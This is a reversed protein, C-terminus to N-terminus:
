IYNKSLQQVSKSYKNYVNNWIRCNPYRFNYRKKMISNYIVNTDNRELKFITRYENIIKNYRNHEVYQVIIGILDKVFLM